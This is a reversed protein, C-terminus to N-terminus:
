AQVGPSPPPAPPRKGTEKRATELRDLCRCYDLEGGARFCTLSSGPLAVPPAQPPERMVRVAVAGILLLSALLVLNQRRSLRVASRSAAPRLPV